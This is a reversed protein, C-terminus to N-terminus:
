FRTAARDLESVALRETRRRLARQHNQLAEAAETLRAQEIEVAAPSMDAKESARLVNTMETFIEKYRVDNPHDWSSTKTVYHYYFQAGARTRCARYEAPLPKKLATEAIWVLQTERETMGWLM